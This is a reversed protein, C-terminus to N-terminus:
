TNLVSGLGRSDKLGGRVQTGAPMIFPIKFRSARAISERRHEVEKIWRWLFLNDYNDPARGYVFGFIQNAAALVAIRFPGFNGEIV